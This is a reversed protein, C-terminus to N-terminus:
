ACVCAGPVDGCQVCTDGQACTDGHVCAHELCMGVNCMCTGMYVHTDGHGCVAELCMGANLV